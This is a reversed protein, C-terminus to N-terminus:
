TPLPLTDLEDDVAPPGPEVLTLVTVMLPQVIEVDDGYAFSNFIFTNIAVDATLRNSAARM